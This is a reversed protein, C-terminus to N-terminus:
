ASKDARLDILATAGDSLGGIVTTILPGRAAVDRMWRLEDESPRPFEARGPPVPGDLAVVCCTGAGAALPIRGVLTTGDADEGALQQGPQRRDARLLRQVDDGRRGAGGCGARRRGSSCGKPRGCRRAAGIGFGRTYGPVFEDPKTWSIREKRGEVMHWQGSAHLSVHFKKGYDERELFLEPKAVGARLRWYSSRKSVRTGLWWRLWRGVTWVKATVDEASQTWLEDRAAVAARRSPFGGRRVARNGGHHSDLQPLGPVMAASTCGRARGELRRGSRGDRCGCRKFVVGREPM